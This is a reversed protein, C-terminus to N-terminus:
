VSAGGWGRRRAVLRHFGGRTGTPAPHSGVGSGAACGVGYQAGPATPSSMLAVEGRDAWVDDDAVAVMLAEEGVGCVWVTAGRARFAGGCCRRPGEAVGASPARGHVLVLDSEPNDRRWLRQLQPTRGPLPPSTASGCSCPAEPPRSRRQPSSSCAECRPFRAGGEETLAAERPMRRVLQVNWAEELARLRRSVQAQSIGLTIAADTLTGRRRDRHPM